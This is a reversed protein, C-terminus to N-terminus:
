DWRSEDLGFIKVSTEEPNKLRSSDRHSLDVEDMDIQNKSVKVLWITDSSSPQWSLEKVSYSLWKVTKNIVTEVTFDHTKITIWNEKAYLVWSYVGKVSKLATYENKWSLLHTKLSIKFLMFRRQGVFDHKLISVKVICSIFNQRLM